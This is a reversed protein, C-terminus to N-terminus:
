LYTRSLEELTALLEDHRGRGIIDSEVKEFSALLERQRSQPIRAEAMPYLVNDEKDIHRRLLAAYGRANEAFSLAAGKHGSKCGAAAEAMGKVYSRGLTHESLMVGIPGGQRPIGAAEMAPFLLDEEKGHHCKDAFLRIFDVMRGLHAPDVKNGAELRASAAELVNLMQKIHGHEDVLEATLNM